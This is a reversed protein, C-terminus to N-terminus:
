EQLETVYRSIQELQERLADADELEIQVSGDSEERAERKAEVALTGGAARVAVALAGCDAGVEVRQLSGCGVFVDEGMTRLSSPLHVEEVGSDRFAGKGLSELGENLKVERLNKCGMFACIGIERLGEPAAFGRLTTGAFAHDGVRRLRSGSEFVVERLNTWGRFADDMIETVAAHVVVCQVDQRAVKEKKVTTVYQPIRYEM